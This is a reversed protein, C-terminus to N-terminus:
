VALKWDEMVRTMWGHFYKKKNLKIYYAGQLCNLAKLLEEQREYANILRVTEHGIRGDLTIDSYIFLIEQAWRAATGVGCNVGSDFLEQAILQNGIDDLCNVDWYKRKYYSLLLQQLRNDTKLLEVFNDPNSKKYHDIIDWGKWDSDSNRTIGRWTEGGRDDPDNDYDGENKYTRRFARFFDAM